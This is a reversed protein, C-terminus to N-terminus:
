PKSNPKSKAIQAKPLQHQLVSHARNILGPTYKALGPLRKQHEATMLSVREMQKTLRRYQPEMLYGHALDPAQTAFRVTKVVIYEVGSIDTLKRSVRTSCLCMPNGHDALEAQVMGNPRTLEMLTSNLEYVVDDGYKGGFLDVRIQDVTLSDDSIDDASNVMNNRLVEAVKEALLQDSTLKAARRVDWTSPLM